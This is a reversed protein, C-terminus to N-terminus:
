FTAHPACMEGWARYVHSGPVDHGVKPNEIRGDSGKMPSEKSLDRGFVQAPSMTLRACSLPRTSSTSPYRANGMFRDNSGSEKPWKEGMKGGNKGM